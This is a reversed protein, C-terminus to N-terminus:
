QRYHEFEPISVWLRRLWQVLPFEKAPRFSWALRAFWCWLRSVRKIYSFLHIKCVSFLLVGSLFVATKASIRLDYYIIFVKIHQPLKNGIHAFDIGGTQGSGAGFVLALQSGLDLAGSLKGQQGVNYFLADIAKTAPHVQRGSDM